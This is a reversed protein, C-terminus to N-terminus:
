NHDAGKGSEGPKPAAGGAGGSGHVFTAGDATVVATGATVYAYSSGGAGGGGSGGASGKGGPGGPSGATGHVTSSMSQCIWGRDATQVPDCQLPIEPGQAGVSGFGGTAGDGGAGGAGGAGGDSAALTGRHITIAADFAFLAISSGGSGGAGGGHGGGGGCGAGGNVGCSTIVPRPTICGIGSPGRACSTGTVCSAQPGLEGNNGPWGDTGAIASAPVYGASTFPGASAGAGDTGPFLADRGDYTATCGNAGVAGPLGAAGTAGAGGAAAHVAVSELTLKTSAGRAFVGYLTEGTGAVPKTEITLTDLTAKGDFDATVTAGASPPARLVVLASANAPCTKSWAGVTRRKWAGQLTIGPKLAIAEVYDGADVFVVSKGQSAARDIATQISACPAAASGCDVEANGAPSVFVGVSADPTVAACPDSASADRADDADSAAHADMDGADGGDSHLVPPPVSGGQADGGADPAVAACPDNEAADRADAAAESAMHADMGDGGDPHLVPPPVSGGQADDGADPSAAGPDNQEFPASTCAALVFAASLSLSLPSRRTNRM